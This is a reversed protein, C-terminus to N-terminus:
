KHARIPREQGTKGALGVKSSNPLVEQVKM